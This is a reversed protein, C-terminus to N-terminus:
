ERSAIVEIYVDEGALISESVKEAIDIADQESGIRICGLTTSSNKAYHLHYFSDTQHREDIKSYYGDDTHWTLVRRFADTPIKVPSYDPDDTWIPNKVVWLGTPFKRPYYPERKYDGLPYTKVVQNKKRLGNLENRVKCTAYYPRDGVYLKNESHIFRLLLM